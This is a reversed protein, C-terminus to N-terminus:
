EYSLAKLANNLKTFAVIPDPQKMFYEGLLFGNFGEQLLAQIEDIGSLGSESIMPTDNAANGLEGKIYISQNIDVEFTKLNRNNVGIISENGCLKDIESVDHLEILVELGLYQATTTFYKIEEKTLIAAILLIVNAGMVKSEYLQYEDIIFEKRLMPKDTSARAKSFDNNVAKFYSKDTLVSVGAAGHNSYGSVIEEVTHMSNIVGKSPSARKFEAIIGPSKALENVLSKNSFESKEIEKILVNISVQQKAEEVEIKKTAVIQELINVM